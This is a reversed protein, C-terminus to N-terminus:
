NAQDSGMKLIYISEDVKKGTINSRLTLAILVTKEDQSWASRTVLPHHGQWNKEVFYTLREIVEGNRNMLYLDTFLNKIIFNNSKTKYRRWARILRREYGRDFLNAMFAINKGDPSYSSQEEYYDLSRTLNKLGKIEGEGSVEAEWIDIRYAPYPLESYGIDAAFLLKNDRGWEQPEFIAGDRLPHTKQDFLYPINAEWNMKATKLVWRAFPYEDFPKAGGIREAWVVMKGDKSFKPYLVGSDLDSATFNTLKIWLSGDSKVLFLNNWWGAGPEALLRTSPVSSWSINYPIELETIFWSGSPHWDSAGKHLRSIMSADVGIVNTPNLSLSEKEEEPNKADAKVKYLQWINDEDRRMFLVENTVPNWADLSADSLFIEVTKENATSLCALVMSLLFCLRFKKIM